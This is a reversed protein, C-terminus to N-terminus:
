SNGRVFASRVLKPCRDRAYGWLLVWYADNGNFIAKPLQLRKLVGFLLIKAFPAEYVAFSMSSFDAQRASECRPPCLILTDPVFALPQDVNNDIEQRACHCQAAPVAM